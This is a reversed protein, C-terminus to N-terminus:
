ENEGNVMENLIEAGKEYGFQGLVKCTDSIAKKFEHQNQLPTDSKIMAKHEKMATEYTGAYLMDM